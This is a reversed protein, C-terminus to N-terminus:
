KDEKIVKAFLEYRCDEDVDTIIAIVEEKEINYQREHLKYCDPFGTRQIAMLNLYEEFSEFETIRTKYFTADTHLKRHYELIQVTM